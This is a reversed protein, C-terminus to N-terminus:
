VKNVNRPLFRLKTKSIVALPGEEGNLDDKLPQDLVVEFRQLLLTVLLFIEISAFMEGPCSRRGISFPILHLPKRDMISGDENLYRSPKFLEPEKWYATDNHVAWINFLVVTNKPIFIGDVVVDDATLRPLGFPGATLWRDLEWLCALTFPMDKRDQWTPLRHAGIVEDIERQVHAQLTDKHAAFNVLHSLITQSTSFTGAMVFSTINGLLYTKQFMPTEEHKAGEIKELYAHIFDGDSETRGETQHKETQAKFVAQFGEMIAMAQGDPTSPIYEFMRRLLRPLFQFFAEKMLLANLKGMLSNLAKLWVEDEPQPSGFFFCSVNKSACSIVDPFIFAPQGNLEGLRDALQCFQEKLRTELATNSFGLDRLMSMCFKKNAKWENGNLVGGNYCRATLFCDARDLLENQNAFKRISDIDNMVVVDTFHIRLRFIPGYNRAWEIAKARYFDRQLLEVHGLISSTPPM